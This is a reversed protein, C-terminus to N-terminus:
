GGFARWPELPCSCASLHPRLPIQSTYLLCAKEMGRETLHGAAVGSKEQAVERVKAHATHAVEQLPRTLPNPGPQRISAPKDTEHSDRICM